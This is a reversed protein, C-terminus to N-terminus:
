EKQKFIEGLKGEKYFDIIMLSYALILPGLILGIVGFGYIGGITGILAVSLPLQSNKSVFYPKLLNDTMSVFIFGYVFLGIGTFTSGTLILYISIPFWVLSAGILPIIGLIISVFTLIVANNIGFIFLGLGMLLGQLVGILFQGYVIADTINKFEKFFRKEVSESFPSLKLFYEKFLESDRTAFYFVVVIVSFKLLVDPINTVLKSLQSLLSNFLTAILGDIYGSVSSIYDQNFSSPFITDLLNVFSIKQFYSYATFTQKILLPTMIWLPIAIIVIILFILIIISFDKNKIHTNIKKYAPYFLYAAILGFIIPILINKLVLVSLTILIAIFLIIAIKKILEKEEM